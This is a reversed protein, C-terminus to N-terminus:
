WKCQERIPKLADELGALNFTVTEPAKDYSPVSVILQTKGIMSKLMPVPQRAFVATANSAVAWQETSIKGQDIKWKVQAGDGYGGGIVRPTQIAFDTENKNCRIFLLVQKDMGISNSILENASAAIGIMQSDDLKDTKSIQLWHTSTYKNVCVLTESVPEDKCLQEAPALAESLGAAYSLGPVLALVCATSLLLKKVYGGIPKMARLPRVTVGEGAQLTSKVYSM